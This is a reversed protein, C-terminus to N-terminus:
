YFSAKGAVKPYKSSEKAIKSGFLRRGIKFLVLGVAPTLRRYNTWSRSIVFIAMSCTRVQNTRDSQGYELTVM